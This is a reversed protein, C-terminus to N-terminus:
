FDLNVPASSESALRASGPGVRYTNATSSPGSPGSPGTACSVLFTLLALLLLSKM